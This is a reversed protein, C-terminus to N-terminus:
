AARGKQIVFILSGSMSKGPQIDGGEFVGGLEDSYIGSLEAAYERGSRTEVGFDFETLHCKEKSSLCRVNVDVVLYENGERLVSPFAAKGMYSDAPSIVRTVKIGLNGVVSEKGVPVPAAATPFSFSSIPATSVPLGASPDANVERLVLELLARQYVILVVIFLVGIALLVLILANSTSRM